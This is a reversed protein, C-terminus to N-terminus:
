LLHPVSCVADIQVWPYSSTPELERRNRRVDRQWDDGAVEAVDSVEAEGGADGLGGRERDVARCGPQQKEGVGLGPDFKHDGRGSHREDEVADVDPARRDCQWRREHGDRDQPIGHPRQQAQPPAYGPGVRRCLENLAVPNHRHGSSVVGGEPLYAERSAASGM